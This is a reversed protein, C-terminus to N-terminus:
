KGTQPFKKRLGSIERQLSSVSLGTLEPLEELGAGNRLHEVIIRQRQTMEAYIAQIRESEELGMSEVAQQDGGGVILHEWGEPDDQQNEQRSVLRETIEDWSLPDVFRRLDVHMNGDSKKRFASGPLRVPLGLERRVRLCAHHAIMNAYSAIQGVQLSTDATYSLWALHIEQAADERLTNPVKTQALAIETLKRVLGLEAIKAYLTPGKELGTNQPTEPITPVPTSPTSITEPVLDTTATM